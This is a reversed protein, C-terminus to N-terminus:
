ASSPMRSRTRDRPSPSTYLLCNYMRYIRKHNVHFGDRCLLTTLRKYGFRPRESAHELLRVELGPIEHKTSQRRQTSRHQGALDCARRESLGLGAQVHEVAARKAAPSVM